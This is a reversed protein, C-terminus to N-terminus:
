GSINEIHTITVLRGDSDLQVAVLDIRLQQPLKPHSAAFFQASKILTRLKWSTIAEQASGFAVGWRTKVEIFVLTNQHTTILDIEGGRLTFNRNIISYGKHKLYSAALDEGLKGKPQNQQSM